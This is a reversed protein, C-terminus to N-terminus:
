YQIASLQYITKELAILGITDSLNKYDLVYPPQLVGNILVLPVAPITLKKAAEYASMMRTTTEDANIAAQLKEGDMGATVAEKVVWANFEAPQLNVWNNYKSGQSEFECYEIITM